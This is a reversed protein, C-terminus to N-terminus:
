ATAIYERMASQEEEAQALRYKIADGISMLGVLKGDAVVPMHRFRGRSMSAVVSLVTDDETATVVDRTMYTSVPDELADPGHKAVARVVDRESLIGCMGGDEGVVVLAGIHKAALTDVVDRLTSHSRMTVVDRGKGAIIRAVTM